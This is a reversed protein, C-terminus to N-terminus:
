PKIGDWGSKIQQLLQVVEDLMAPNNQAHASMLRRVMYDYLADLNTAIEGGAELNLSSRLGDAIITIAMNIYQGKSTIDNSLLREKADQISQIAKSLLKAILEHPTAALVAADIEVAKYENLASKAYEM